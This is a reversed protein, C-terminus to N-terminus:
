RYSSLGKEVAPCRRDGTMCLVPGVLLQYQSQDPKVGTQESVDYITNACEVYASLMAEAPYQKNMAATAAACHQKITEGSNSKGNQQLKAMYNSALAMASQSVAKLCEPNKWNGICSGSVAGAYNRTNGRQATQAIVHSASGLGILVALALIALKSKLPM